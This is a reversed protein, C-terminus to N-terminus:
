HGQHKNKLYMVSWTYMVASRAFRTIIEYVPETGFGSLRRQKQHVLFCRCHRMHKPITFKIEINKNITFLRESIYSQLFKRLQKSFYSNLKDTMWKHWLKDFALAEDLFVTSYLKKRKLQEWGCKNKRANPWHYFM